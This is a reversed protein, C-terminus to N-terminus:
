EASTFRYYFRGNPATDGNLWFNMSDLQFNTNDSWKFDFKETLQHPKLLSKDIRLEIEKANRKFDAEGIKNKHMAFVSAVDEAFVVRLTFAQRSTNGPELLLLNMWQSDTATTLANDTKVYFYLYQDDYSVKSQVIDNRGTSNTYREISGWGPHDRHTIDGISDLYYAPVSEWDDFKGDINIVNDAKSVPLSRHGKFLRIGDIMQFYYNDGYGGKMMEVDRSYEQNYLDVFYSDGTQRKEGLFNAAKQDTFRMAVWENWGTIFLFEPSVELARQWQEAFYSGKESQFDAPAPQQGNQHSRGINSTPHQAVAVSIQEPQESSESWGFSQPTYDLWPWKNKGDKFWSNPRSWAWSQRVTFFAKLEESLAEEPVLILPKGKWYFWLDAFQQPLYFEDYVRQATQEPRSNLLFAIDPTNMGKARLERFITAIKSVQPLYIAANTADFVIVDVGADALMQAHKRIVWDDDALYYGFMPEGWYHFAKEPGFQPNQPNAAVIKTLDYPSNVDDKSKPLVGHDPLPKTQKDYGHAGQWVFYFIGVFKERDIGPGDTSAPLQRGLDDTAVWTDAHLSSPTNIGQKQNNFKAPTEANQGYAFSSLVLLVLFRLRLSLRLLLLTHTKNAVM